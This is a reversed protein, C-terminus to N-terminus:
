VTFQSFLWFFFAAHVTAGVVLGAAMPRHRRRRAALVGGGICALAPTVWLPSGPVVLAVAQSFGIGGIAGLAIALATRAPTM